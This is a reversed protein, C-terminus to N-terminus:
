LGGMLRNVPKRCLFNCNKCGGVVMKVSEGKKEGRERNRIQKLLNWWLYNGKWMVTYREGQGSPMTIICQPLQSHRQHPTLAFVGGLCACDSAVPFAQTAIIANPKLRFGFTCCTSRYASFLLLLPPFCSQILHMYSESFDTPPQLWSEAGQFVDLGTLCSFPLSSFMGPVAPFWKINSNLTDVDQRSYSLGMIGRTVVCRSLSLSPHLFLPLISELIFQM